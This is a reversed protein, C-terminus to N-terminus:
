TTELGVCVGAKRDPSHEALPWLQRSGRPAEHRSRAAPFVLTLGNVDRRSLRFPSDRLTSREYASLETVLTEPRIWQV